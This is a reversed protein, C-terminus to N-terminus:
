NLLDCSGLPFSKFQTELLADKWGGVLWLGGRGNLGAVLLYTAEDFLKLVLELFQVSFM